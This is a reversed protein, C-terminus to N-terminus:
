FLPGELPPFPLEKLPKFPLHSTDVLSPTVPASRGEAAWVALCLALVLDDHQGERWTGYTDNGAGTIKFRYNLLEEVLAGAEPLSPAIKLRRNGEQLLVQPRAILDKKPVKYSDGDRVEEDGGTIVVSKFWLGEARLQATVAAGVGTADVALEWNDQLPPTDLLKRVHRAVEPYPTRLPLRGLYRVEYVPEPLPVLKNNIERKAVRLDVEDYFPSEHMARLRDYTEERARAAKLYNEDMGVVAMATFDQMQGLDLGVFFDAMDVEEL